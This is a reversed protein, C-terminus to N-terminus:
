ENINFIKEIFSNLGKEFLQKIDQMPQEEQDSFVKGAVLIKPNEIKGQLSAELFTTNQDYFFIKGDIINEIFNYSGKLSSKGEKNTVLIEQSSILGNNIMLTGNLSSPINAYTSLLFNISQSISKLDPIKEVLLSLLAAGFREEDSSTFYISGNIPIKGSLSNEWSQDDKGKGSIKFNSSSLKINIREWTALQSQNLLTNLSINKFKGRIMFPQKDDLEIKGELQLNGDVINGKLNLIHFTKNAYKAQLIANRIEMGKYTITPSNLNLFVPSLPWYSKNIQIDANQISLSNNKQVIIVNSNSYNINPYFNWFGNNILEIKLGTQEEINNIITKTSFRDRLIFVILISVVLITFFIIVIKKM